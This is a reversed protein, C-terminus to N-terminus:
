YSPEIPPVHCSSNRNNRSEIVIYSRRESAVRKMGKFSMGPQTPRLLPGLAIAIGSNIILESSVLNYSDNPTDIDDQTRM